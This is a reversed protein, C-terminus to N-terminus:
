SRTRFIHLLCDREARARRRDYWAQDKAPHDRWDMVFVNTRDMNVTEGDFELGQERRRHFVNGLGRVSSIDIQVNTCESIAAEILEAREYHASEDKFYILKRGGRGLDYGSEGTITSGTQQNVIRMFSFSNRETFGEPLFCYPVNRILMRM